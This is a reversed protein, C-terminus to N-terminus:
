GDHLLPRRVSVGRLSPTRFPGGYGVDHLEGDQLSDGSHCRACRGKGEFLERGRCAQERKEEPIPKAAPAPLSELYAVLDTVQAPSPTRRHLRGLTKRVRDALTPSDGHWGYPATDAVGFLPKTRRPGPNEAPTDWVRGDSGGGPHCSACSFRGNFTMRSSHFLIEGRRAPGAPPGGLPIHKVVRSTSGDVAIVTLSDSLTNAAVLTRGDDSLALRRPNSQTRLVGPVRSRYAVELRPAVFGGFGSWGFQAPPPTPRDVVEQLAASLPKAKLSLVVDSGAASVFLTQASASWVADAPDAAGVRGTDLSGSLEHAAGGGAFGLAGSFGGTRAVAVSGDYPFTAAFSNTFVQGTVRRFPSRDWDPEADLHLGASGRGDPLPIGVAARKRVSGDPFRSAGFRDTEGNALDIRLFEPEDDAVYLTSGDRFVENPRHGTKFRRLVEGTELDVEALEDTGNLAVYARRGDSSVAVGIPDPHPRRDALPRRAARGSTDAALLAAASLGFSLAAVALAARRIM